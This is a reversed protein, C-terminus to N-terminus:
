VANKNEAPKHSESLWSLYSASPQSSWDRSTISDDIPPGDAVKDVLIRPTAPSIPRKKMISCFAGFFIAVVVAFPIFWFADM